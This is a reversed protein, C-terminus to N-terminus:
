QEFADADDCKELARGFARQARSSAPSKFRPKPAPYSVDLFLCSGIATKGGVSFRAIAKDDPCYASSTGDPLADAPHEGTALSILPVDKQPVHGM